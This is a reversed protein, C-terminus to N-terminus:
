KISDRIKIVPILARVETGGNISSIIHLTGGLEEARKKMNGLGNGKTLREEVHMGVGNDKISISANGGMKILKISIFTAESYKAANNIAEKIILLVNKRCIVCTIASDLQSDFQVEYKIDTHGLMESVYNKIRTEMSLGYEQSSKLSWIIDGINESIKAASTSIQKLLSKTRERNNDVLEHAVDSYIQLSSLSSGIDDHLDATIRNREQEIRLKQQWERKNQLIRHRYFALSILGAIISGMLIINEPKKYFPAEIIISVSLPQNDFTENVDVAKVLLDHQGNALQVNLVNGTLDIWASDNNFKYQFKKLHGELDIGSFELSINNQSYDLDYKNSIPWDKQNIKVGTLYSRIPTNHIPIDDPLSVIGKETAAYVRGNKYALDNIVLAPLGDSISFNNVKYTNIRGNQNYTLKSLGKRSGIWVDNNAGGIMCTIASNTLLQNEVHGVIKDNSVIFIGKEATAFFALGDPTAAIALIRQNDLPTNRFISYTTDKYYDYKFAGDNAGCYITENNLKIISSIRIMNCNALSLKETHTNLKFLAGKENVACVLLVSDNYKAAAKARKLKIKNDILLARKFDVISEQDSFVFTKNNAFIVKRIWNFTNPKSIRKLYSQNSDLVLIEGFYNGGFLKGKEIEISLFNDNMLDQKPLKIKKVATNRYLYMGDHLTGIWINNLDDKWVSNAFIEPPTTYYLSLDNDNLMFIKGVNSSINITGNGIRFWRLEDNILTRKVSERGSISDISIKYFGDKPTLIYLNKNFILSTFYEDEDNLKCIRIDRQLGASKYKVYIYKDTKTKQLFPYLTVSKGKKMFTYPTLLNSPVLKKNKFLLQGNSNYYVIGGDDMPSVRLVLKIFDKNIKENKLPDIFRNTKEDFYCPGQKFTNVWITGDKEKVVELIESDPLGDATTYVRFFKGDFRVVGDNTSIWIFGRDDQMFSYILNSPLGDATTFNKTVEQSGALCSFFLLSLLVIAQKFRM